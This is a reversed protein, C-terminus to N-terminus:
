DCQEYNPTCILCMENTTHNYHNLSVALSWRREKGTGINLCYSVEAHSRCTTIIAELHCVLLKTWTSQQYSHKSPIVSVTICLGSGGELFSNNYWSSAKLTLEEPYQRLWLSGGGGVWSWKGEWPLGCGIVLQYLFIFDQGDQGVQPFSHLDIRARSSGLLWGLRDNPTGEKRDIGAEKGEKECTYIEPGENIFM